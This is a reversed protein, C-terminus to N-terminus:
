RRHIVIDKLSQIVLVAPYRGMFGFGNGIWAGGPITKTKFSKRTWLHGVVTVQIEVDQEAAMKVLHRYQELVAPPLRMRQTSIGSLDADPTALSVASGHGFVPYQISESPCTENVLVAGHVGANFHGRVNISRGHFERLNQFLDCLGIPPLAEACGFAIVCILKFFM